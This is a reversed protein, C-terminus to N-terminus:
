TMHGTTSMGCLLIDTMQARLNKDEDKNRHLYWTFLRFVMSDLLNIISHNGLNDIQHFNREKIMLFLNESCTAVSIFTKYNYVTVWLVARTFTFTTPRSAFFYTVDINCIM